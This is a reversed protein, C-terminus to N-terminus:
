KKPKRKQVLTFEYSNEGITFAIQREANTITVNECANESNEALFKAIESIIGSKTPNEKRKKPESKTPTKRTGVNAYKKAMKETEPDLDFDMRKGRDIEKDCQLVDAIEEETMGLRRMAFIQEDNTKAM